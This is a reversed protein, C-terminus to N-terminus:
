RSLKLAQELVVDRGARIDQLTPSIAVDPTVGRLHFPTIGDHRTVRLSTFTIRYGSPTYFNQVDGNTGASPSGVITALHLDAFYGLISEAQSIARGNTLVIIKGVIRPSTPMLNWGVDDYGVPQDFPGVYRPIHMWRAHEPKPLVHQLLWIGTKPTPYGRLDIILARAHSFQDLHDNLDQESARTIDVYWVGDKLSTIPDPKPTSLKSVQKEYTLTVAFMHGDRELGMVVATGLPGANLAGALQWRQWQPSGSVLSTEKMAWANFDVGNISVVRDGAKVMPDASAVVALADGVPELRLPLGGFPRHPDYVSGHGDQVLAVLHRLSDRQVERTAQADVATLLPELQADWDAGVEQWYPYFHRYVNWSVIIDALRQDISIPSDELGTPKAERTAISQQQAFTSKAEEDSLDIPVRAKLGAGLAFEVFRQSPPPAAFLTVDPRMLQVSDARQQDIDVNSTHSAVFLGPRAIRKAQYTAYRNVGDAYGVRQWYVQTLDAALPQATPFRQATPVIVIGTTVPDFLSRLKAALANSDHANRVLSVGYVAFRNWNMGQIADGPYYYRAVGYLRAFAAVDATSTIPQSTQAAVPGCLWGIAVILLRRRIGDM